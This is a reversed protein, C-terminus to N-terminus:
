PKVLGQTLIYTDNTYSQLNGEVSIAQNPRLIPLTLGMSTDLNVLVIAANPETGCRLTLPGSPASGLSLFTGAWNVKANAIGSWYSRQQELTGQHTNSYVNEFSLDQTPLVPPFTPSVSDVPLPAIPTEGPAATLTPTSVIEPAVAGAIALPTPTFTVVALTTPTVIAVPLSTPLPVSTSKAAVVIRPADERRGFVSPILMGFIVCGMGGLVLSWRPLVMPQAIPQAIMAFATKKEDETPAVYVPTPFNLSSDTEKAKATVVKPSIASNLSHPVFDPAWPLTEGCKYCTEVFTSNKAGCAACPALDVKM